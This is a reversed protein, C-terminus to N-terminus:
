KNRRVTSKCGRSSCGWRNESCSRTVPKNALGSFLAWIPVYSGSVERDGLDQSSCFYPKLCPPNVETFNRLISM